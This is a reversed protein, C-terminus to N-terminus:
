FENNTVVGVAKKRMEEIRMRWLGLSQLHVYNKENPLGGAALM